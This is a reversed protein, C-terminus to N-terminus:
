LSLVANSEFFFIRDWGEDHHVFSDVMWYCARFGLLSLGSSVRVEDHTERGGSTAEHAKSPSEIM